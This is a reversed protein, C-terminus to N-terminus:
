KRAPPAAATAPAKGPAPANPAKGAAPANTTKGAAPAAPPASSSFVGKVKGWWSQSPPANTVAPKNAAAVAATISKSGPAGGSPKPGPGAPTAAPAASKAAARKPYSAVLTMNGMLKMRTAEPNITMSSVRILSNGSSLAFLFNVLANEEAVFSITGTQEEFFANTKGGSNAPGKGPTYGTISVGSMAAQSNVTRQMALAQAEADVVEGKEKLKRLGSQYTSTKDIERQYRQLAQIIEEKRHHLKNWESFQPWIFWFYLVAIVVLAIVVVLRREAPRLNLKDLLTTM